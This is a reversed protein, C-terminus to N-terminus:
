KQRLKNGVFSNKHKGTIDIDVKHVIEDVFLGPNSLNMEMQRRMRQHRNMINRKIIKRGIQNGIRKYIVHVKQGNVIEMSSCDEIKPNESQFIETCNVSNKIDNGFRSFILRQENDNRDQYTNKSTTPPYSYSSILALNAESNSFVSLVGMKQLVDKLNYTSTLKMKPFLVITSQRKANAILTNLTDATLDNM